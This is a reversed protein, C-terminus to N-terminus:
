KEMGNIIRIGFQSAPIGVGAVSLREPRQPTLHNQISNLVDNIFVLRVGPIRCLEVLQQQSEDPINTIAFLVTGVAHKKVLAPLDGTGGLVRCGDVSMGQVGPDDDVMGVISVAPQLGRGQLLRSAIQGGEGAGLILVREGFSSTKGRTSLWRSAFSTILRWRYRAALFGLLTLVGILSIMEPPLPPFPRWLQLPLLRNLGLLLLTTIRNSFVLVLGDQASARSWVIRDLGILFNVSSFLVALILALIM